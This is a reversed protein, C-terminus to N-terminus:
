LGEKNLDDNEKKGYRKIGLWKRIKRTKCGCFYKGEFHANEGKAKKM